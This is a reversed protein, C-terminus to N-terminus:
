LPIFRERKKKIEVPLWDYHIIQKHTKDDKITIEHKLLSNVIISEWTSIVWTKIPSNNQSFKYRSGPLVLLSTSM